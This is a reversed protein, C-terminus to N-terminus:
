RSRISARGPSSTGCRRIRRRTSRAAARVQELREPVHRGRHRGRRAAREAPLPLARGALRRHQRGRRQALQSDLVAHRRRRGAEAIEELTAADVGSEARPSSSRTTPTSSARADREFSEFTAAGAGSQEAALYEEWNWWRRVFERNYLDNQILYNAIALLIAAESAPILRSGTTPTRPPTALAAHRLRDAERREGQRRHRAARAPQLLPGVRPARQDAPHSERERSRPEPRDLGMWLQYGERAGSSCINTHSNHGDVGWAALIRETFGDEGPRGVHYMIENRRDEVIAKRIRAPSTTSRRTGPSASGSDKAANAPASAASLSHPRSRHGPQANGSGQRLQPRALRSARSQRRVEAGRLTERDIYALLGCASECNFCTTPVLM